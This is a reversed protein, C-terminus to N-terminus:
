RWNLSIICSSILCLFQESSVPALIDVSDPVDRVTQLNPMGQWILGSFQSSTNTGYVLWAYDSGKVISVTVPDVTPCWYPPAVTVKETIEDGGIYLGYPNGEVISSTSEGFGDTLLYTFLSRMNLFYYCRIIGQFWHEGTSEDLVDFNVSNMEYEWNEYEIGDVTVKWSLTYPFSTPANDATGIFFYPTIWCEGQGVCDVILTGIDPQYSNVSESQGELHTYGWVLSDATYYSIMVSDGPAYFEFLMPRFRPDPPSIKFEFHINHLYGDLSSSLTKPVDQRPNITIKERLKV